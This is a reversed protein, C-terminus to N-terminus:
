TDVEVPDTPDRQLLYNLNVNQDEYMMVKHAASAKICGLRDVVEGTEFSVAMAHISIARPTINSDSSATGLISPLSCAQSFFHKKRRPSYFSRKTKEKSNQVQKGGVKIQSLVEFTKLKMRTKFTSGNLFVALEPSIAMLHLETTCCFRIGLRKTNCDMFLAVSRRKLGPERRERCELTQTFNITMRHLKHNNPNGPNVRDDTQLHAAFFHPCEFLIHWVTEEVEADFHCDPNDKLRLRHLYSTIIGHGTLVQALLKGPAQRNIDTRGSSEDRIRSKGYPLPVKDYDPAQRFAPRQKLSSTQQKM